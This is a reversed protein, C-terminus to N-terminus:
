DLLDENPDNCEEGGQAANKHTDGPRHHIAFKFQQLTVAWRTLRQNANRMSNLWTLPQHDTILTFEQGYLYPEFFKVAWVIALCEEITSYRTERPKLKRSAYAVPHEEGDRGLQSLVAGLGVDSADTHVTFPKGVGAVKLIPPRVLRDKLCQFAEECGATWQVTEPQKKRLSNTLPTAISAFDPVFRRYYSTLGIFANM